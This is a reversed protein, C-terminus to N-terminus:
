LDKRRKIMFVFIDEFFIHKKLVMDFFLLKEWKKIFSTDTLSSLLLYARGGPVLHKLLGKLFDEAAQSGGKGSELAISIEGYDVGSEPLYPPNFAIVDFQGEIEQFLESKIISISVGNAKANKEACKLAKESIDAATVEAGELAACIGIIGTGTGMDLFREGEHVEIADIMLYSDERPPYTGDCEEIQIKNLKM